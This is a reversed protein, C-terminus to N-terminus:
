AQTLGEYYTAFLVEMHAERVARDEANRVTKEPREYMAGPDVEVAIKVSKMIGGIAGFIAFNAMLKTM